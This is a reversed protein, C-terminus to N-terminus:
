IWRWSSDYKLSYVTAYLLHTFDCVLRVVKYDNTLHDFGFGYSRLGEFSSPLTDPLRKSEGTTPNYLFVIDEDPSICILGNCSRHIEVYDRRSLKYKLPYNLEVAILDRTSEHLLDLTYMDDNPLSIILKKPHHVTLHLHSKTLEPDSSISRFLKSVCRSRGISKIPLKILIERIIEPPFEPFFKRRQDRRQNQQHHSETADKAPRKAESKNSQNITKLQGM